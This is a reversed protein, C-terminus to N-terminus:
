GPHKQFMNFTTQILGSQFQTETPKRQKRLEEQMNTHGELQQLTRWHKDMSPGKGVDGM